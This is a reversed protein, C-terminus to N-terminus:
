VRLVEFVGMVVMTIIMMVVVSKMKMMLMMVVVVMMVVPVCLLVEQEPQLRLVEFVDGAGVVHLNAGLLDDALVDGFSGLRLHAHTHTYTHM